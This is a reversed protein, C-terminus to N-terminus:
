DYVVQARSPPKSRGSQAVAAGLLLAFTAAVAPLEPSFDVIGHVAVLVTAGIGLCAYVRGPNRGSSGAICRFFAGGVAFALLAAGPIGLELADELYVNHAKDYVHTVSADRETRFVDAFTGYGTGVFPRQMILDATIRYVNEREGLTNSASIMRAAFGGGTALFVVLLAVCGTVVLGPQRSVPGARMAVAALFVVLGLASSVVGGRSGTLYLAVCQFLWASLLLGNRITLAAELAESFARHRPRPAGDAGPPKVLLVTTCLLTLGVFTAYANRNIFTSTLAGLYATKEYGLIRDSGFFEVLGYVAYATGAFAIVCVALETHRPLRAYHVALWFIGGYALLRAFASRTDFRDLTISSNVDMRLAAAADAWLPHHLQPAAFSSAQFAAWGAALLFPVAIAAIIRGRAIAIERGRLVRGGWWLVLLGIILTLTSWAWM